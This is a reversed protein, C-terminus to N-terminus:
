EIIASYSVNFYSLYILFRYWLTASDPLILPKEHQKIENFYFTVKRENSDEFDCEVRLIDNPGLQKVAVDKEYECLLCLSSNFVGTYTSWYKKDFYM